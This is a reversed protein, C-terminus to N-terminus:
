KCSSFRSAHDVSCLRKLFFGIFATFFDRQKYRWPVSMKEMMTQPLPSYHWHTLIRLLKQTRAKKDHSSSVLWKKHFLESHRTAKNVKKYSNAYNVFEFIIQYTVLFCFPNSSWLSSVTIRTKHKAWAFQNKERAYFNVKKKRFLFEM